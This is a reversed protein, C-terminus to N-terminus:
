VEEIGLTTLIVSRLDRGPSESKEYDWDPFVEDDIDKLRRLLVHLEDPHVNVNGTSSDFSSRETIAELHGDIGQNVCAAIAKWEDKSRILMPYGDPCEENCLQKILEDPTEGWNFTRAM